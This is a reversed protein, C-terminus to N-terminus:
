KMTHLSGGILIPLGIFYPNLGSNNNRRHNCSDRILIPLGIFYPNLGADIKKM